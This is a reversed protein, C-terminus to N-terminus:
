DGRRRLSRVEPADIPDGVPAAHEPREAQATRSHAEGGYATDKGAESPAAPRPPENRFDDFITVRDAGDLPVEARCDFISAATLCVLIALLERRRKM